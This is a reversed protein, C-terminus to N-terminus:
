RAAEDPRFVDMGVAPDQGHLLDTKESLFRNQKKESKGVIQSPFFTESKAKPDVHHPLFQKSCAKEIKQRHTADVNM